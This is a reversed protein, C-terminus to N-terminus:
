SDSPRVSAQSRTDKMRCFYIRLFKNNVVRTKKKTSCRARPSPSRLGSKCNILCGFTLKYSMEQSDTIAWYFDMGHILRHVIRIRVTHIKHKLKSDPETLRWDSELVTNIEHSESLSILMGLYSFIM